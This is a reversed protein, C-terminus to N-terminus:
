EKTRRTAIEGDVSRVTPLAQTALAAGQRWTKKDPSV